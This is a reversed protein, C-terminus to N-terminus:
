NVDTLTWPKAMKVVGAFWMNEVVSSDAVVILQRRARSIAVNALRSGHYNIFPSAPNVLDVIVIDAESGQIRHITGVLLRNPEVGDLLTKLLEVQRRFPCLVAV